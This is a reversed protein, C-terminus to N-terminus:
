GVYFSCEISYSTNNGAVTDVTGDSRVVLKGFAGNSSTAFVLDADPRYGVPLTFADLGITGDKIRGQIQVVGSADKIFRAVQHAAGFNVWSNEFVPEGTAGVNHWHDPGKIYQLFKVIGAFTRPGDEIM